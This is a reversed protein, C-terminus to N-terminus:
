RFLKLEEMLKSRKAAEKLIEGTSTNRVKRNNKLFRVLTIFWLVPWFLFCKGAKPFNLHMQHHFEKVYAWLGTGSMMVMRSSASWGMDEADMVERLMKDAMSDTIEWAFNNKNLGLYKACVATIAEAFKDIESEEALKKFLQKEEQSWEYNWIIVWDCLLKLGFGAYVFHQLMHLLLEYAHFPKDLVPIRVGMSYIEQIHEKCLPMQAEMAMNIKKYAFPEALMTHVEIDIGDQSVFVTHHNAHQESSVSFGADLLITETKKEDGENLLLIDVDGSKRLEPTQYFSATAVGKLIAFAIGNKELLESVQKTLFLLRYSQLVARRSASAIINVCEKPLECAETVDYLFPIVAHKKALAVVVTKDVDSDIHYQEGLLASKVLQLLAQEEKSFEMSVIAEIGKRRICGTKTDHKKDYAM